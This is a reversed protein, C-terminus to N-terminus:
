FNKNKDFFHTKRRNEVWDQVDEDLSHPDFFSFFADSSPEEILLDGIQRTKVNEMFTLLFRVWCDIDDFNITGEMVRFEVTKNINYNRLSLSSYKENQASDWYKIFYDGVKKNKSNSSRIWRAAYAKKGLRTEYRKRNTPFMQMVSREILLWSAFILEAELDRVDMHIHLGDNKTVFVGKDNLVTFVKKLKKYQPSKITIAPSTFETETSGDKKLVWDSPSSEVMTHHEIKFNPSRRFLPTIIEEVTPFASSFEAEVGILRTQPSLLIPDPM